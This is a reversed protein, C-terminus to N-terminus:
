SPDWITVDLANPSAEVHRGTEIWWTYDAEADAERPNHFVVRTRTVVMAMEADSLEEDPETGQHNQMDIVATVMQEDTLHGLALYAGEEGLDAIKVGANTTYAMPPDTTVPDRDYDPTTM